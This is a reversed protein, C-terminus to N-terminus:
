KTVDDWTGIVFRKNWKKDILWIVGNEKDYFKGFGREGNKWPVEYQINGNERFEKQIGHRKGNKWPCEHRINGNEHFSKQIGNQKM